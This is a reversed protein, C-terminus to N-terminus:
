SALPEYGDMRAFITKTAFVMRRAMAQRERATAYGGAIVRDLEGLHVPQVVVSARDWGGLPEGIEIRAARAQQMTTPYLITAVAGRPQSLAYM